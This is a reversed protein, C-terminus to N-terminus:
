VLLQHIIAVIQSSRKMIFAFELLHRVLAIQGSVTVQYYLILFYSVGDIITYPQVNSAREALPSITCRDLLGGYLDSGSIYAFNEELLMIELTNKGDQLLLLQIFYKTKTSYVNYYSESACTGFNTEDAVYMAGGYNASNNIFVLVECQIEYGMPLDLYHMMLVNLKSNQEFCVGGGAFKADNGKFMITAWDSNEITISSDTAYIGGGKYGSTNNMLKLYCERYCKLGSQHLYM